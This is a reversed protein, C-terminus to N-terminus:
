MRETTLISGTDSVSLTHMVGCKLAYNSKQHGVPFDFCVPFNFDKVKDLIVSQLTGGFEEDPEDPKIKFGGVILAALDELKKSRLLNYLMRDINYLYEGTDEIFLIKGKTNIDSASGTLNALLSLNGGVLPATVKGPRNYPSPSASYTLNEGTLAQKISLITEIQLPDATSWDSPFSNCMKSHLTAFNYNSHIHNHLVTIDSFGIVWKPFKKFGNFNLSDIIRVVGYGGRACMIANIHPADLMYQLDTAREEDTGGFTFNRKGVTKGIEVKFGWSQMLEVAPKIADHTIFGAPCTIAITDGPKLYPPLRVAKSHSLLSKGDVSSAALTLPVLSAIFNKRHM